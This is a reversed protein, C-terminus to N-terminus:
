ASIHEMIGPILKECFEMVTEPTVDRPGVGTGGTTFIVDAGGERAEQLRQRLRLADDPLITEECQLHWRKGAFFTELLERVRPGSRDPYEGSFARDSLTIIHVTLPRPHYVGRDGPRITGGNVVRCFIGEHPMVCKGVERFIACGDGHCSKGIQTIELEVSGITFRDLPAVGTLEMGRLTLNEAFEGPAFVRGSAEGFRQISQLSLLSVQRSWAGAHADGVVGLADLMIAAVPSKITGKTTSINVSEVVIKNELQTSM